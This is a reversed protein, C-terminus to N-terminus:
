SAVRKVQTAGRSEGRTGISPPSKLKISIPPAPNGRGLFQSGRL